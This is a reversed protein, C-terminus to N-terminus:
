KLFPDLFSIAGKILDRRSLNISNPEKFNNNIHLGKFHKNSM